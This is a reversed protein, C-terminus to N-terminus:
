LFKFFEEGKKMLTILDDDSPTGQWEFQEMQDWKLAATKEEYEKKAGGIWGWSGIRFAKKGTLHKRAFLDLVQAMPPFLKYEYTPAAIIIGKAPYCAALIESSDTEPVRLTIIHYTDGAAEKIGDILADCGRKTHGYMSSVLVVIQNELEKGTNYGAYRAYREIVHEPHVRWVIGHSPAITKISLSSLKEIAKTVFLSFSSVITAYYRLSEYEFFRHEKESFEDDFIRNGTAGYGGFADCSFLTGSKPEFTAMTEPWHVNPIEYFELVVDDGLDLVDGTKVEQIAAVTEPVKLFQRVLAAGKATTVIHVGPNKKCFEPLLGTHDPELHNLILYDISVPKGFGGIYEDFRQIAEDWNATLDILATKAGSVLYSNLTVGHPIPWIGEFLPHSQIDMHLVSIYPTITQIKM